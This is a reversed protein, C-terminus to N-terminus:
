PFSSIVLPPHLYTDLEKRQRPGINTHEYAVIRDATEPSDALYDCGAAHYNQNTDPSTVSASGSKRRSGVGVRGGDLRPRSRGPSTSHFLAAIKGSHAIAYGTM